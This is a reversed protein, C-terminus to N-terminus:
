HGEEHHDDDHDETSNIAVDIPGRKKIGHDHVTDKSLQERFLFTFTCLSGLFPLLLYKDVKVISGATVYHDAIKDIIEVINARSSEDMLSNNAVHLKLIVCLRHFKKHMKHIFYFVVSWSFYDLIPYLISFYIDQESAIEVYGGIGLFVYLLWLGPLHSFLRDFQLYDQDIQYWLRMWLSYRGATSKIGILMNMHALHMQYFMFCYLGATMPIWNTYFNFIPSLFENIHEVTSIDTNNFHEQHFQLANIITVVTEIIVLIYLICLLLICQKIQSKKLLSVRNFMLKRIEKQNTTMFLGTFFLGIPILSMVVLELACSHERTVKAYVYFSERVVAVLFTIRAILTFEPPQRRSFIVGYPGTVFSILFLLKNM